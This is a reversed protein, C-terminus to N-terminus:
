WEKRGTCCEDEEFGEGAESQHDPEVQLKEEESEGRTGVVEM